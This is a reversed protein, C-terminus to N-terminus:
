DATEFNLHHSAFLRKVGASSKELIRASTKVRKEFDVKHMQYDARRDIAMLADGGLGQSPVDNM